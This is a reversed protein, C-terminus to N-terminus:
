SLFSPSDLLPRRAWPIDDRDEGDWSAGAWQRCGDASEVNEEGQKGNVGELYESSHQPLWTTTCGFLMSQGQMCLRCADGEVMGRVIFDLARELWVLGEPKSMGSVIVKVGFEGQSGEPLVGMTKGGASSRIRDSRWGYEVGVEAGREVSWAKLGCKLLLSLGGVVVETLLLLGLVWISMVEIRICGLCGESVVVDENGAEVM